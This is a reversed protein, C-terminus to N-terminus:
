DLIMTPYYDRLHCLEDPGHDHYECNSEELTTEEPSEMGRGNSHSLHELVALRLEEHDHLLKCLAEKSIHAEAALPFRTDYRGVM